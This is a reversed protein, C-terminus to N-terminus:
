ICIFFVLKLVLCSLVVSSDFGLYLFRLLACNFEADSYMNNCSLLLQCLLLYDKNGYDFYYNLLGICGNKKGVKEDVPSIM